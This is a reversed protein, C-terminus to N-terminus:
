VGLKSVRQYSFAGGVCVCVCLVCIYALTNIFVTCMCVQKDMQTKVSICLAHDRVFCRECVGM